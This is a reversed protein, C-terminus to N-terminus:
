SIARLPFSLSWCTCVVPVLMTAKTINSCVAVFTAITIHLPWKPLPKGNHRGIVIILATMATASILCAGLEVLWWDNIVKHSPRSSAPSLLNTFTSRKKITKESKPTTLNAKSESEKGTTSVSNNQPGDYCYPDKILDGSAQPTGTHPGDGTDTDINPTSMHGFKTLLSDPFSFHMKGDSSWDVIDSINGPRVSYLRIRHEVIVGVLGSLNSTSDFCCRTLGSDYTNRPGLALSRSPRIQHEGLCVQFM